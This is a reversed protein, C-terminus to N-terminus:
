AVGEVYMSLAKWLWSSYLKEADAIDSQCDFADHEQTTWHGNMWGDMRENTWENMWGDMRENTWENMWGDMRENTWENMWGDM